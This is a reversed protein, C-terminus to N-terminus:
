GSMQNGVGGSKAFDAVKNRHGIKKKAINKKLIIKKGMNANYRNINSGMSHIKIRLKELLENINDEIKKIDNIDFNEQM